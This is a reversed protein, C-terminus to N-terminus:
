DYIKKELGQIKKAAEFSLQELLKLDLKVGTSEMRSLVYALPEEIELFLKILDKEKLEKELIPYLDFIFHIEDVLRNGPAITRKLFEWSLAGIDFASQAPAVLYGALMVDFIKGNLPCGKAALLKMSEKVNHTIKVLSSSKWIPLLDKIRDSPIHFVKDGGLYVAVGTFLNEEHEEDHDFLFVFEGKKEVASILKKIDSDQNVVEIVLSSKETQDAKLEEAFKRFELEQFLEFLRKNNPTKVEMDELDFDLPVDLSLLSLEKSLIAEERQEMLKERVKPPKIEDIHKLINELTKHSEILATATVEGIGKVGPINDVSDGALGIYDVILRPEFGL